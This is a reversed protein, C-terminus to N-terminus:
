LTELTNHLVYLSITILICGWLDLVCRLRRVTLLFSMSYSTSKLVVVALRMVTFIIKIAGDGSGTGVECTDVNTGRRADTAGELLM